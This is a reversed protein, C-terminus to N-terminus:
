STSIDCLHCTFHQPPAGDALAVFNSAAVFEPHVGDVILYRAKQNISRIEATENSFASSHCTVRLNRLELQTQIMGDVPYQLIVFKEHVAPFCPPFSVHKM